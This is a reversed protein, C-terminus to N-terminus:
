PVGCRGTAGALSWGIRRQGRGRTIVLGGGLLTRTTGVRARPGISGAPFGWVSGPRLLGAAPRCWLDARAPPLIRARSLRISPLIRIRSPLIRVRNLLIRRCFRAILRHCLPHRGTEATLGRTRRITERRPQVIARVLRDSVTRLGLGAGPLRTTWAAGVVGRSASKGRRGTIRRLSGSRARSTRGALSRDPTTFGDLTTGRVATTTGLTKVGGLTTIGRVASTGVQVVNARFEPSERRGATGGHPCRGTGTM